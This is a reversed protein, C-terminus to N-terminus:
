GLYGDRRLRRVIVDAAISAGKVNLHVGDDQRVTVRRGGSRITARFRGGPTFRRRMDIVSVETEDFRRAARIIARNVPRFVRNFREDRAAPLLLWYVRGAGGRVYSRMMTAVRDAYAAVWAEDCCDVRRGGRRLPFGDNAGLFVVTVHPRFSRAMRRARALWDFQEPKSIGTAIHADSRVRGGRRHLRRDLFGDVLQIMSDGTALLRFRGAARRVRGTGAAEQGYPTRMTVRYRGPVPAPLRVVKAREGAAFRVDECRATRRGPAACVRVQADGVGFRDAIRVDIGRRARGRGTGLVFRRGCGPTTAATVTQRTTGDPLVATVTLERTLRDCRWSLLRRRGSTPAALPMTTVLEPAGSTTEDVRLVAGPPGGVKLRIWGREVVSATAHVADDRPVPPAQAAAGAAHGILVGVVIAIGAPRRVRRSAVM